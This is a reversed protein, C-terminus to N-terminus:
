KTKKDRIAPHRRRKKRLETHLLCKIMTKKQDASVSLSRALNTINPMGYPRCYRGFDKFSLADVKLDDLWKRYEKQYRWMAPLMCKAIIDRPLLSFISIDYKKKSKERLKLFNQTQKLTTM